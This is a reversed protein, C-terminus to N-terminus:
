HIGSGLAQLRGELSADYVTDGMQVRLGGILDPNQTERVYLPRDHRSQFTQVLRERFEDPLSDVSELKLTDKHLERQVAKHLLRLFRRRDVSSMGQLVRDLIAPLNAEAEQRDDLLLRALRRSLTQDDAHAM